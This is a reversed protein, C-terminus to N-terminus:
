GHGVERVMPVHETWEIQVGHYGSAMVRDVGEATPQRRTLVGTVFRPKRDIVLVPKRGNTYAVLVAVKAADLKEIAAAAIRMGDIHLKNCKKM